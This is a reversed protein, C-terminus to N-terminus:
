VERCISEYFDCTNTWISLLKQTHLPSSDNVGMKGGLPLYGTGVNGVFMNTGYMIVIFKM